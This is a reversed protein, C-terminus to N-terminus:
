EEVSGRIDLPFLRRQIEGTSERGEIFACTTSISRRIKKLAGRYARLERGRLGSEEPSPLAKELVMAETVTLRNAGTARAYKGSVSMRLGDITHPHVIM